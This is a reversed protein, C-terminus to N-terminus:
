HVASVRCSGTSPTTLTHYHLVCPSHPVTRHLPNSLERPHTPHSLRRGTCGARLRLSGLPLYATSTANTRRTGVHSASTSYAQPGPPGIVHPIYNIQMSSFGGAYLCPLLHCRRLLKLRLRAMSKIYRLSRRSSM